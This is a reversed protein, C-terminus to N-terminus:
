SALQNLSRDKISTISSSSLLLCVQALLPLSVLSVSQGFCLYCQNRCLLQSACHKSPPSLGISTHLCGGPLPQIDFPTSSPTTTSFFSHDVGSLCVSLCVNNISIISSLLCFIALFARHQIHQIALYGAGSSVQVPRHHTCSLFAACGCLKACCVIAATTLLM